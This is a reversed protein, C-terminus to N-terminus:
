IQPYLITTTKTLKKSRVKISSFMFREEKGAARFSSPTPEVCIKIDWTHYVSVIGSHIVVGDLCHPKWCHKGKLQVVSLPLCQPCGKIPTTSLNPGPIGYSCSEDSQKYYKSYVYLKPEVFSNVFPLCPFFNEVTKLRRFAFPLICIRQPFSM